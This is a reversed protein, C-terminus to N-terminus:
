VLSSDYMEDLYKKMSGGLVVLNCARAYQVMSSLEIVTLVPIM